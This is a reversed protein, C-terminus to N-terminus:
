YNMVYEDSEIQQEMNMTLKYVEMVKQMNGARLSHKKAVDVPNEGPLVFAPYDEWDYTDCVVILHTFGQEVGEEFWEKIDKKSAAM